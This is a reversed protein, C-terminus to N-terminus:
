KLNNLRDLFVIGYYDKQSCYQIYLFIIGYLVVVWFIPKTGVEKLENVMWECIEIVMIREFCVKKSTRSDRCLAGISISFIINLSFKVMRARIHLELSICLNPIVKLIIHILFLFSCDLDLVMCAKIKFVTGLYFFSDFILILLYYIYRCPLSEFIM